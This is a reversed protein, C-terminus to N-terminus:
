IHAKLKVRPPRKLDRSVEGVADGRIQSARPIIAGVRQVFEDTRGVGVVLVNLTKGSQSSPSSFERVHGSDARPEERM